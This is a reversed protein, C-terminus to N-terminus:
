ILTEYSIAVYNMLNKCEECEGHYAVDVKSSNRKVRMWSAVQLDCKTKYTVGDQGCFPGKKPHKCHCEGYRDKGTPDTTLFFFCIFRGTIIFTNSFQPKTKRVWWVALDMNTTLCPVFDESRKVACAEKWVWVLRVAIVDIEYGWNQQVASRNLYM